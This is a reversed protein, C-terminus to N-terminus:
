LLKEIDEIIEDEIFVADHSRVLRKQVPDYFRYGLQDQGYGVFICQRTKDDLKSREDNPVHVFAKCGFVRLHDYSVDKRSQVREPTDYQLPFCPSLNLVHTVALIAEGWFIKSLKAHSLICRVREM